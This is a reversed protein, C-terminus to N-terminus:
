KENNFNDMGFCKSTTTDMLHVSIISFNVRMCMFLKYCFNGYPHVLIEGIPHKLSPKVLKFSIMQIPVLMYNEIGYRLNTFYLELCPWFACQLFINIIYITIIAIGKYMYNYTAMEAYFYMNGHVMSM